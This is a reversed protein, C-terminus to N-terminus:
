KEIESVAKLELEYAEIYEFRPSFEEPPPTLVVEPLDPRTIPDDLSHWLEEAEEGEDDFEWSQPLLPELDAVRRIDDYNDPTVIDSDTQSEIDVDGYYRGPESVSDWTVHSLVDSIRNQIVDALAGSIDLTVNTTSVAGPQSTDAETGDDIMELHTNEGGVDVLHHLENSDNEDESSWGPLKIALEAFPILMSKGAMLQNMARTKVILTTSEM